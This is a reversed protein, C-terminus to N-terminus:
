PILYVYSLEAGKYTATVRWCGSGSPDIGAIM